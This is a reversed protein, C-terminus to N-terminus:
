SGGAPRNATGGASPFDLCVWGLVPVDGPVSPAGEHRQLLSSVSACPNFPRPAAAYHRVYMPFGAMGGEVFNQFAPLTVTSLDSSWAGYPYGARYTAAFDPEDGDDGYAFDAAPSGGEMVTYKYGAAAGQGTIRVADGTVWNVTSGNADLATKDGYGECTARFSAVPNTNTNEEKNCSATGLALLAAAAMLISNSKM